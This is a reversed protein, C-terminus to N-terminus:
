GLNKCFSEFATFVADQVTADAHQTCTYFRMAQLSNIGELLLLTNYRELIARRADIQELADPRNLSVFYFSQGSSALHMISNFNYAFFPLGRREFIDTIGEAVRTAAKGAVHIADTKEILEIAKAAAACTITTGALTGATMVGKKIAQGGEDVEEAQSALLAMVDKRGGLAGASPFGHGVIKGFMSIDADVGYYEQAGGMALRFGTIVEDMVLLVDNATCIERVEKYHEPPVLHSMGDGGGGELFVAAVGGKGEKAHLKILKEIRRADGPKVTLTKEYCGRPIGYAFMNASGPIHLDVVFQDSWGHYSGGVKIINEKGTYCRALRAAAMGAETGSQYFRVQEVSRVHKVIAKAAAIEEEVMTGLSTGKETIVHVVHATLEPHNHGLIIPGSSMLFDVFRNGDVDWLHCGSGRRMFLPFPAHKGNQHEVGGPIYRKADEGLAKSTKFKEHYQKRAAAMAAPGVDIPEIEALRRVRQLLEGHDLM